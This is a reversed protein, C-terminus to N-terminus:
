IYDAFEVHSKNIKSLNLTFANPKWWSGLTIKQSLVLKTKQGGDTYTQGKDARIM